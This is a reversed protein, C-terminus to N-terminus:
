EVVVFRQTAQFEGAWMRILYIGPCSVGLQIDHWGPEYEAPAIGQVLRGAIDFLSFEIRASVPLGFNIWAM